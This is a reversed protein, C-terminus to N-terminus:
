LLAAIILMEKIKCYIKDFQDIGLPNKGTGMEITFGPKHFKEIFWDKLGGHSAIDEEPHSVKYGSSSALIKVIMSSEKPTHCGYKYYIEEGQSHLAYLSRPRYTNCFGTIAQTEPESHAHEGGYRTYSPATIGMDEEMKKLIRWGADFNHNIDVGRANAQWIETVDKGDAISLVKDKYRGASEAGNVAIEMGDPNLCPVIAVSRNKMARRLDIDSFKVSCKYSYLIEECFKILILATLWELGHTAGVFLTSNAPSGISLVKIERGLVSKGIPFVKLQGYERCLWSIAKNINNYDPKTSYFNEFM